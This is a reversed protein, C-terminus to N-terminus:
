LDNAIGLNLLAYLSAIQADVDEIDLMGVLPPIAGLMALTVRADSDEKALLRVDSAAAVKRKEEEQLDKVVRKLEELAEVKKRTEADSEAEALNLLDLLKESKGNRTKREQKQEKSCDNLISRMSTRTNTTTTTNNNKVEPEEEEEEEQHHHHHHGYRSSGGCSVADFIKRRFAAGSISTWLRFHNSTTTASPGRDLVLSGVDNRHCKAM